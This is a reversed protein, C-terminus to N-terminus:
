VGFVKISWFKAKVRRYSLSARMSAMRCKSSWEREEEEGEGPVAVKFESVVSHELNKLQHVRVTM